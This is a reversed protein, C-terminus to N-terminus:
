QRGSDHDSPNKNGYASPQRQMRFFVTRLEPHIVADTAKVSRRRCRGFVPIEGVWAKNTFPIM